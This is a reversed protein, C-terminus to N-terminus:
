QLKMEVLVVAAEAMLAQALAAAEVAVVLPQLLPALYLILVMVAMPELLQAVLVVVAL